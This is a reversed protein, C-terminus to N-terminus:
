RNEIIERAMKKYEKRINEKENEPLSSYIKTIGFEYKLMVAQKCVERQFRKNKSLIYQKIQELSTLNNKLCFRKVTLIGIKSKTTKIYDVINSKEQEFVDLPSITQNIMKQIKQDVIKIATEKYESRIREKQAENTDDWNKRLGSHYKSLSSQKWKEANLLQNRKYSIIYKKVEEFSTINRRLCYSKIDSFSLHSVVITLLMEINTKERKLFSSVNLVKHARKLQKRRKDLERYREKNKECYKKTYKRDHNNKIPDKRRCERQEKVCELCRLYPNANYQYIGHLVEGHKKCVALKKGLVM